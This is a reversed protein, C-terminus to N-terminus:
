DRQLHIVTGRAAHRIRDELNQEVAGPCADAHEQEVIREPRDVHRGIMALRQPRRAHPDLRKSRNPQRREVKRLVTRM